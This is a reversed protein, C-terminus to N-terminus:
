EKNPDDTSNNAAVGNHASTIDPRCEKSEDQFAPASASTSFAPDSGEARQGVKLDHQICTEHAICGQPLRHYQASVPDANGRNEKEQTAPERFAPKASTKNIRTLINYINLLYILSAYRFV